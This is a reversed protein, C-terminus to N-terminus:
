CKIVHCRIHIYERLSFETCKNWGNFVYIWSLEFYFLVYRCIQQVSISLNRTTSISFARKAYVHRISMNHMNCETKDIATGQLTFGTTSSQKISIILFLFSHLITGDKWILINYDSFLILPFYLKLFLSCVRFNIFVVHKRRFNEYFYCLRSQFLYFNLINEYFIVNIDVKMKILGFM